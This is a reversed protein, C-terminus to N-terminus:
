SQRRQALTGAVDAFQGFIKGPKVSWGAFRQSQSRIKQLKEVGVGPGPVHALQGVTQAAHDGQGGSLLNADVRKFAGFPGERRRERSGVSGAEPGADGQSFHLALQHFNREGGGAAVTRAGGFQQADAQAGHAVLNSAIAQGAPAAIDMISVFRSQPLFMVFGPMISVAIVSARPRKRSTSTARKLNIPTFRALM